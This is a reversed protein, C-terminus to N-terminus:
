EAHLERLRRKLEEANASSYDALKSVLRGKKDVLMLDYTLASYLRHVDKKDAMVPFTPAEFGPVHNDWNPKGDKWATIVMFELDNFGQGKLV